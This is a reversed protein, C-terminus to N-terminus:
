VDLHVHSFPLTIYPDLNPPLLWCQFYLNLTWWCLGTFASLSYFLFERILSVFYWFLLNLLLSWSFLPFCLPYLTKSDSYLFLKVSVSTILETLLWQYKLYLSSQSNVRANPLMFAISSRSLFLSRSLLYNEVKRYMVENLRELM